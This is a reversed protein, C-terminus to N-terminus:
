VPSWRHWEFGIFTPSKVRKKRTWQRAAPDKETGLRRLCWLAQAGRPNGLLLRHVSDGRWLRRRHLGGNHQKHEWTPNGKNGTSKGLSKQQIVIATETFNTQIERGKQRNHGLFVRHKTNVSHCVERRNKCSTKSHGKVESNTDNDSSYKGNTSSNTVRSFAGVWQSSIALLRPPVPKWYVCILYGSALIVAEIGNAHFQEHDHCRQSLQRVERRPRTKTRRVQVFTHTRPWYPSSGGNWRHSLTKGRNTNLAHFAVLVNPGAPIRVAVSHNAISWNSHRDTKLKSSRPWRKSQIQKM